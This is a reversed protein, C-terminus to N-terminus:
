FPTILYACRRAGQLLHETREVRAELV